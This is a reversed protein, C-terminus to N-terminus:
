VTERPSWKARALTSDLVDIWWPLAGVASVRWEPPIGADGVAARMTDLSPGVRTACARQVAAVERAIDTARVLAGDSVMPDSRVVALAFRLTDLAEARACVGLVDDSTVPEGRGVADALADVAAWAATGADHAAVALRAAQAPFTARIEARAAGSEAPTASSARVIRGLSAFRDTTTSM